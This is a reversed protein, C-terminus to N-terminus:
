FKKSRRHLAYALLNFLLFAAATAVVVANLPIAAEKVSATQGLLLLLCLGVSAVGMVLSLVALLQFVPNPKL